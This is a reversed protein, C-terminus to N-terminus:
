FTINKNHILIDLHFELIIQGLYIGALVVVIYPFHSWSRPCVWILCLCNQMNFKTVPEHSVIDNYKLLPIQIGYEM